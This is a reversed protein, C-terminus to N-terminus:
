AKGDALFAEFPDQEEKQPEVSIRSIAEPSLGLQAGSKMMQETFKNYVALHLNYMSGGNPGDVIFGEEDLYKKETIRGAYSIVWIEFIGIYINALMGLRFLGPAFGAWISKELRSLHKPPPPLSPPVKPENKNLRKKSPNGRLVRLKTPTRKPGPM